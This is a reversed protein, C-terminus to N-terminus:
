KYPVTGSVTVYKITDHSSAGQKYIKGDILLSVNIEDNIEMYIASVFIIQGREAQFSYSWIDQSSNVDIDKNMLEGSENLYNVRFGTANNSVQYKVLVEDDKQCAVLIITIIILWIRKM